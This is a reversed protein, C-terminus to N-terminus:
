YESSFVYIRNRGEQKAKYLTDDANKFWIDSTMTDDLKCIGASFSFSKDPAFDYRSNCFDNKIDSVKKLVEEMPENEWLIVFEEGGFRFARRISGMNTKIILALNRLVTDGDAHGYTDNVNKFHDIDIICCTPNFIGLEHKKTYTVLCTELCSKNYLGTMPEIKLEEILQIQRSCNDSIYLIQKEQSSVLAHALLCSIGFLAWLCFLSMLRYSIGYEKYEFFYIVSALATSFLSTVSISSVLKKSCFVISLIIPIMLSFLLFTYYCHICAIMTCCVLVSYSAAYNKARESFKKGKLICTCVVCTSGNVATPLAVRLLLYSILSGPIFDYKTYLFFIVVELIFTLITGIWCIFLIQNQLYTFHEIRYEEFTM